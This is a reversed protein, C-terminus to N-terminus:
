RSHLNNITRMIASAGAPGALHSLVELDALVARDVQARRREQIQQVARRASLADDHVMDAIALLAPQDLNVLAEKMGELLHISRSAREFVVTTLAQDPPM